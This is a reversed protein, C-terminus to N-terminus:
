DRVFAEPIVDDLWDELDDISDERSTLGLDTGPSEDDRPMASQMPMMNWLLTAAQRTNMQGVATTLVVAAVNAALKGTSGGIMRAINEENLGEETVVASELLDYLKAGGFGAVSLRNMARMYMQVDEPLDTDGWIPNNETGGYLWQDRLWESLKAMEILAVTAGVSWGINKFRTGLSMKAGRMQGGTLQWYLRPTLTNGFVTPYLMFTRMWALYPHNMWKPTNTGRPTLVAEEMFRLMATTAQGTWFGGEQPAGESMWKIAKNVDVGYYRMLEVARAHDDTVKARGLRIRAEQEAVAKIFSEMALVTTSQVTDMMMKAGNVIFAMNGYVGAVDMGTRATLVDHLQVDFGKGVSEMIIRATTKQTIGGEGPRGRYVARALDSMPEKLFLWNKLTAKLYHPGISPDLLGTALETLSSVVMMGLQSFNQVSITHRLAEKVFRPPRSAHYRVALDKADMLQKLTRENPKMGLDQLEKMADRVLGIWAQDGQGFAQVEAVRDLVRQGYRTMYVAPNTEIYPTLEEVPIKSLYYRGRVIEPAMSSTSHEYKKMAGVREMEVLGNGEIIWDMMNEVAKSDVSGDKKRFYKMFLSELGGKPGGGIRGVKFIYPIHNVVYPAAHGLSEKALKYMNDAWARTERALAHNMDGKILAEHWDKLVQHPLRSYDLATPMGKPFYRRIGTLWRATHKDIIRQLSHPEWSGLYTGHLKKRIADFTIVGEMDRTWRWPPMWDLRHMLLALKVGGKEQARAALDMLESVHQGGFARRLAWMNENFGRSATRAQLTQKKQKSGKKQNALKDRWMETLRDVVKFVGESIDVYGGQKKKLARRAAAEARARAQKQQTRRHVEIDSRIRAKELESMPKSLQKRVPKDGGLETPKDGRIKIGYDALTAGPSMRSKGLSKRALKNYLEVTEHLKGGSRRLSQDSLKAATELKPLIGDHVLRRMFEIEQARYFRGSPGRGGEIAQPSQEAIFRRLNQGSLYVIRGDPTIAAERMGHLEYRFALLDMFGFREWLNISRVNGEPTLIDIRPLYGKHTPYEFDGPGRQRWRVSVQRNALDYLAKGIGEPLQHAMGYFKQWVNAMSDMHGFLATTRLRQEGVESAQRRTQTRQTRAITQQRQAEKKLVSDMARATVAMMEPSLLFETIDRGVATALAMAEQMAEVNIEQVVAVYREYANATAKSDIKARPHAGRHIHNFWADPSLPKVTQHPAINEELHRFHYFETDAAKTPSLDEGRTHKELLPREGPGELRLPEGPEPAREPAKELDRIKQMEAELNYGKERARAQSPRLPAELRSEGVLIGAQDKPLAGDVADDVVSALDEATLRHPNGRGPLARKGPSGSLNTTGPRIPDLAAAVFLGHVAGTTAAYAAGEARIRHEPDAGLTEYYLGVGNAVNRALFDTGHEFWDTLGEEMVQTHAEADQGAMGVVWKTIKENWAETVAQYNQTIAEGVDRHQGTLLTDLHTLSAGAGGVAAAGGIAQGGIAALPGAIGGWFVGEVADPVLGEDTPREPAARGMLEMDSIGSTFQGGTVDLFSAGQGPAEGQQQNAGAQFEALFAAENNNM